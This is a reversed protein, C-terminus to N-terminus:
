RERKNVKINIRRRDHTVSPKILRMSDFANEPIVPLKLISKGKFTVSHKGQVSIVGSGIFEHDTQVNFSLKRSGKQLEKMKEIKTRIIRIHNARKRYDKIIQQLNVTLIQLDKLGKKMDRLLTPQTLLGSDERMKNLNRRYLEKRQKTYNLAMRLEQYQYEVYNREEILDGLDNELATSKERLHALIQTTKSCRERFKNLEEDKEEVKDQYSQNFIKLREYNDLLFGPAIENLNEIADLKEQVLQKLNIFKLRLTSVQDIQNRQRRILHDVLKDPIVNGTKTNILGYGVESEQSQMNNFMMSLQNFKADREMRACVIEENLRIKENKEFEIVEGYVKVKQNYKRQQELSWDTEKTVYDMKKRKFYLALKKQLINNLMKREGIEATVTLHRAYYPERDLVPTPQQEEETVDQEEEEIYNELDLPIYGEGIEFGELDIADSGRIRPGLEEYSLPQSRCQDSTKIAPHALDDEDKTGNYSRFSSKESGSKSDLFKPLFSKRTSRKPTKCPDKPIEVEEYEQAVAQTDYDSYEEFEEPEESVETMGSIGTVIMQKEEDETKQQFFGDDLQQPDNYAITSKSQITDLDEISQKPDVEYEDLEHCEELTFADQIIDKVFEERTAM